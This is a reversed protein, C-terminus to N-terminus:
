SHVKRSLRQQAAMMLIGFVFSILLGVLFMYFFVLNGKGICKSTWPCHHDFEQICVECDKCHETKPKMYVDCTSCYNQSDLVSIDDDNCKVMEIGPDLM